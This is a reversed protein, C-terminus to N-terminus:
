SPRAKSERLIRLKNPRLNAGVEPTLSQYGFRAILRDSGFFHDGTGTRSSFRPLRGAWAAIMDGLADVDERILLADVLVADRVGFILTSTTPSFTRNPDGAIIRAPSTFVRLELSSRQANNTIHSLESM